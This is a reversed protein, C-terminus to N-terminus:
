GFIKEPCSGIEEIVARVAQPLAAEIEPSLSETVIDVQQIGIGIISVQRPVEDRYMKGALTLAANLGCSHMSIANESRSFSEPGTRLILGTDRDDASVADVVILRDFGIILDLLNLGAAGTEKFCVDPSNILKAAQRVVLVGAGDDGLLTNGIGLVLTKL